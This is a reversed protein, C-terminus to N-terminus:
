GQVEAEKAAEAVPTQAAILDLVRRRQETTFSEEALARRCERSEASHAAVGAACRCGVRYLTAPSFREHDYQMRVPREALRLLQKGTWVHQRGGRAHPRLRSGPPRRIM